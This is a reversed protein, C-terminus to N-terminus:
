HSVKNGLRGVLPAYKPVNERLEKAVYAAQEPDLDGFSDLGSSGVTAVNSAENIQPAASDSFPLNPVPPQPLFASIKGVLNQAKQEDTTKKLFPEVGGELPLIPLVSGIGLPLTDRFRRPGDVLADRLADKVQASAALVSEEVLLNQVM